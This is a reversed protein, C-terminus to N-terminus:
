LDPDQHIFQYQVNEQLDRTNHALQALGEQLSTITAETIEQEGIQSLMAQTIVLECVMNILSDVKDIGVRISNSTSDPTKRPIKLDQKIDKVKLENEKIETAEDVQVDTIVSEHTEDFLGGCLSM